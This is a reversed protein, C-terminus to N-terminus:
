TVMLYLLRGRVEYERLLAFFLLQVYTLQKRWAYGQGEEVGSTATRIQSWQGVEARM